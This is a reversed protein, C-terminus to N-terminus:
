ADQFFRHTINMSPAERQGRFWCSILSEVGFRLPIKQAYKDHISYQTFYSLRCKCDVKGLTGMTVTALRLVDENM